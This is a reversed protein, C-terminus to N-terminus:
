HVAPDHVAYCHGKGARGVGGKGVLCFGQAELKPGLQTATDCFGKLEAYSHGGNYAERFSSEDGDFGGCTRWSTGYAHIAKWQAPTPHRPSAIAPTALGLLVSAVAIKHIISM